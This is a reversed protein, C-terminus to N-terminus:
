YSKDKIHEYVVHVAELGEWDLLTMALHCVAAAGNYCGDQCQGEKNYGAETEM